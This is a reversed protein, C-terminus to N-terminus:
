PRVLRIAFAGFDTQQNSGFGTGAHRIFRGIIAKGGSELGEVYFYSFGTIKVEKVSGHDYIPLYTPVLLIRSCDREYNRYTNPPSPCENMRQGIADRTKGTVTGTETPVLQNVEIFDDYGNLLNEYYTSKGSSGLQLIGTNGIDPHDIKLSYLENKKLTKFWEENVGVPAVGEAKVMPQIIAKAEVEVLADDMGVVGALSFPVTRSAKIYVENSQVDVVYNSDGERNADMVQAAVEEAEQLKLPLSQAGSLAAANVSKQLHSKTVYVKGLDVVLSMVALLLLLALAMILSASGKEEKWNYRANKM